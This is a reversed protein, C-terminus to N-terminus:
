LKKLVFTKRDETYLLFDYLHLAHRGERDKVGFGSVAFNFKAQVLFERSVVRQHLRDYLLSIIERNHQLPAEFARQEQVKRYHAPNHFANSCKKCCFRQQATRPTYAQQCAPNQCTRVTAPTREQSM